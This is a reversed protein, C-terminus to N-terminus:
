NVMDIMWLEDTHSSHTRTHTRPYSHHDVWATSDMHQKNRKRKLYIINSQRMPVIIIVSIIPVIHHCVKKIATWDVSKIAILRLLLLLVHESVATCTQMTEKQVPMNLSALLIIFYGVGIIILEYVCEAAFGCSYQVCIAVIGPVVAAAM